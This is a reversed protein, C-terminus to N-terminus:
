NLGKEKGLFPGLSEPSLYVMFSMFFPIKQGKMRKM